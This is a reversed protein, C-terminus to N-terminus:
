EGAALRLRQHYRRQAGALILLPDVRQLPGVLLREEQMVVERRERDALGSAHGPRATALDAVALERPAGDMRDQRRVVFKGVRQAYHRLDGLRVAGGRHGGYAARRQRQHVRADRELARGGADGHAEDELVLAIGHQGVDEAVLIMEAIHVELYRAGLPAHGRQLHVDLDGADGLLDHAHREALRLVPAHVDQALHRLGQRLVAVLEALVRRADLHEVDRDVLNALHDSGAALHDALDHLLRAGLDVNGVVARHLHRGGVAVRHLRRDIPDLRDRGLGLDTVDVLSSHDLHHVEAGEYVEEAGLVAEHVDALERRAPHLLDGVDDLFAVLDLHLKEAEVLAALDTVNFPRGLPRRKM